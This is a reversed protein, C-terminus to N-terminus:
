PDIGLRERLRDAQDFRERFFADDIEVDSRTLLRLAIQSKSSYFAKGFVKGREDRITVISGPKADETNLIDSGYVWVKGRRIADGGRKHIICMDSKSESSGGSSVAFSGARGRSADRMITSSRFVPWHSSETNRRNGSKRSGDSTRTILSVRTIRARMWPRRS